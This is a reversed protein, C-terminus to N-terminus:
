EEGSAADSARLAGLEREFERLVIGGGGLAQLRGALGELKYAPAPPVREPLAPRKRFLMVRSFPSISLASLTREMADKVEGLREPLLGQEVAMKIMEGRHLTETAIDVCEKVLLFILITKFLKKIPWVFLTVLCGLPSCGAGQALLNLHQAELTVGHDQGLSAYLRRRAHARAWEDVFPLPILPTFATALAYNAIKPRSM